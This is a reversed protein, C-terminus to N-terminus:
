HDIEGKHIPIVTARKWDGTLNGNNMTIDLLRALYPIMAEEGLKLIEGFVRHPVVLNNKGIAGISRGIIEIDITFPEVTNRGTYASYQGRQQINDFL